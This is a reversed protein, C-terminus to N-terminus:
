HAGGFARQMISAWATTWRSVCPSARLRPSTPMKPRPTPVPGLAYPRRQSAPVPKAPAAAAVKQEAAHSQTVASMAAVVQPALTVRRPRYGDTYSSLDTKRMWGFQGSGLDQVRAFDGNLAIVRFPEGVPSGALVHGSGPIDRLVATYRAVQVLQGLRFHGIEPRPLPPLAARADGAPPQKAEITENIPIILRAPNRGLGSRSSSCFRARPTSSPALSGYPRCIGPWVSTRMPPGGDMTLVVGAAIPEELPYRGGKDDGGVLPSLERFAEGAHGIGAHCCGVGDGLGGEGAQGAPLRRVDVM